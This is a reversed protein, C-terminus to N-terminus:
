GEVDEEIPLQDLKELTEQVRKEDGINSYTNFLMTYYMGKQMDSMMDPNAKEAALLLADYQSNNNFVSMQLIVLNNKQTENEALKEQQEFYENVASVAGTTDDPFESVVEDPFDKGNDQKLHQNFLGQAVNQIETAGESGLTIDEPLKPQGNILGVVLMVLGWLAVGIVAASAFTVFFPAVKQRKQDREQKKAQRERNQKAFPNEQKSAWSGINETKFQVKPDTKDLDPKAQQPSNSM